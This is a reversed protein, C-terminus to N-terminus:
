RMHDRIGLVILLTVTWALFSLGMVLAISALRSPYRSSEPMAPRAFTALYVQQRNALAQSSRLAQVANGYDREAMSQETELAIYRAVTGDPDTDGGENGVRGEAEITQIQQETERIRNGLTQMQPSTPGMVPSLESQNGNLTSLETRLRALQELRSGAALAVNSNTATRRFDVLGQRAAHLRAETKKLEAESFRVLDERGRGTLENALREASEVVAQALRLSDDPTFARVQVSLIGTSLEYRSRVMSRWHDVLTEVPASPSLRSLYDASPHSLIRRLGVKSEIEDVLQRTTIFEAVIFSDAIGTVASPLGTTAGVVDHSSNRETSRLAFKVETVYQNSAIMGFYVLALITPAGVMALFSALIGRGKRRAAVGSGAATSGRSGPPFPGAEDRAPEKATVLDAGADDAFAMPGDDLGDPLAASRQRLVTLLPSVRSTGTTSSSM